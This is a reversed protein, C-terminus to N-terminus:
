FLLYSNQNEMELKIFNEIARDIAKSKGNLAKEYEPSYFNSKLRTNLVERSEKLTNIAATNIEEEFIIQNAIEFDYWDAMNAILEFESSEKLYDDFYYKHAAGFIIM